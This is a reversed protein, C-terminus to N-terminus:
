LNKGDKRSKIKIMLNEYDHSITLYKPINELEKIAWENGVLYDSFPLLIRVPMFASLHGDRKPTKMINITLVLVIDRTVPDIASPSFNGELNILSGIAEIRVWASKDEIASKLLYQRKLPDKKGILQAAQVRVFKDSSFLLLQRLLKLAKGNGENLRLAADAATVRVFPDGSKFMSIVVPLVTKDGFKALAALKDQRQEDTIDSDRLSYIIVPIALKDGVSALLGEFPPDAIGILFMEKLWIANKGGAKIYDQILKKEKETLKQGHKVEDLSLPKGAIDDLVKETIAWREGSVMPNNEVTFKIAPVALKDRKEGLRLKCSNSNGHFLCQILEVNKGGAKVYDDIIKQEEPPFKYNNSQALSIGGINGVVFFLLAIVNTM